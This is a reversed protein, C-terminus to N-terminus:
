LRGVGEYTFGAARMAQPDYVNRGDFLVRCTTAQALEAPTIQAFEKWETALLIADVNQVAQRWSTAYTVSTGLEVKATETAVPDYAVIKAGAVRLKKVVTLSPAERMDDTEPKFALGLLAVTRKRLDLGFHDFVRRALVSKQQDNVSEVAQLIEMAHGNSRGTSVLAKVDKPFCSGGYGIGANLFAKGIRSDSGIGRKVAVVDAGVLECLNAIENMFSIRTALMANSAYKTMESSHIDMFHVQEPDKVFPAHLEALIARARPSDTGVIVRDPHLFDDVAAGEKLFEPNSVVDFPVDTADRLLAAVKDCTGIPVTSKVVVVTYERMHKAITTAVNLVHTLDASGDEQPPTGVAIFVVQAGQMAAATDTTFHLRGADVNAVVLDQLGPEYIPIIGQKLREVKGADIDVCIADCGGQAFCTGAVLGVYGTGIVAIKM